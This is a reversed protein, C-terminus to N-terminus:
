IHKWIRRKKINNVAGWSLNFRKAIEHIKSNDSRIELVDKVTLRARPNRVGVNSSAGIKFAHKLNESRTVWELNDLRNNFRCNDKHNVQSKNEPNPLFTTAMIRHLLMMCETNDDRRLKFQLYGDRKRVVPKREKLKGKRTSFLRGCETIYYGTFGAVPKM